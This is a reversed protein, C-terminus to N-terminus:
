RPTASWRRPCATGECRFATGAGFDDFDDFDGARPEDCGVALSLTSALLFCSNKLKNMTTGSSCGAPSRRGAILQGRVFTEGPRFGRCLAQPDRKPREM